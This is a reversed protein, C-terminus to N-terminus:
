LIKVASKVISSFYDPDTLKRKMNSLCNEIPNLDPSNGPWDPVPIREIQICEHIVKAKQGPACGHEACQHDKLVDLYNASCM